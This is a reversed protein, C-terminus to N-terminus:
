IGAAARWRRYTWGRWDGLEGALEERFGEEIGAIRQLREPALTGPHARMWRVAPLAQPGLHELYSIDLRYGRGGAEACHRVNFDAIMGDFNILACVFLVGLATFANMRWLWANAKGHMIRLIIWLFGALVVGCWIMTATRLRTLETTDVYIWVRCVTSILLVINQGIWAYVLWRCARSRHATGRARFATLTFVGALLATAILTYAGRHCYEKYTLGEPLPVGAYLYAGDLVNECAFVLNMVVLLRVIMQPGTLWAMAPAGAVVPPVKVRAGWTHRHRLLGYVVAMVVIWLFMRLFSLAILWVFLRYLYEELHGFVRGIVPNAIAFLGLFVMGALVPLVWWAVAKVTGFLRRDLRPHRVLWRAVLVNDRCFRAWVLVGLAMWRGLWAPASDRLLNLDHQAVLVLTGMAVLAIVIAMWSPEEVLAAVAVLVVGTMLRGQMTKRLAPARVFLLIGIAAAFIAASVGVPHGWFLFDWLVALAVCAVLVFYTTRHWNWERAM